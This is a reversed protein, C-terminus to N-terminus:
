EARPGDLNRRGGSYHTSDTSRNALSSASALTTTDSVSLQVLCPSSTDRIDPPSRRPSIYKLMQPYRGAPQLSPALQLPPLCAQHLPRHPLLIPLPFHQRLLDTHLRCANSTVFYRKIATGEEMINRKCTSKTLLQSRIHFCLTQVDTSAAWIDDLCRLSNTSLEVM